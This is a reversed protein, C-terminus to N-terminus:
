GLRKFLARVAYHLMLWGSYVPGLRECERYIRWQWGLTKIKNSSVSGAYVRYSALSQAIGAAHGARKILALWAVYDEHKYPQFMEKGLLEADYIGTLNGIVNGKLLNKYDTQLPPVVKGLKVGNQDIRQYASYCISVGATKMFALQQSLKQPEWLDDSDLFAIYRGRANALAHNRAATVGQNIALPLIHIRDDTNAYDRVIELTNDTSCDDVVLLEWDHHSQSLVSEIAAAIFRSANFAPMVISVLSDTSM